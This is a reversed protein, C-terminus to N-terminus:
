SLIVADLAQAIILQYHAQTQEVARQLLHEPIAIHEYNNQRKVIIGKKLHISSDGARAKGTLSFLQYQETLPTELELWRQMHNLITQPEIRIYDADYYYYLGKNHQCFEALTKIRDIYYQTAQEPDAYPHNINKNCFLNVISKITQDASRISVLTKIQKTTFNDLLLQYDNHLLKDFLYRSSSKISDQTSYVEQQKLFDDDCLYSLHMEYYGSIQPHSGLIHAILSTNARMHSLLFIRQYVYKKNM